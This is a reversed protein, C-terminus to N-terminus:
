MLQVTEECFTVTVTCYCTVHHEYLIEKITQSPISHQSQYFRETAAIGPSMTFPVSKKKKKKQSKLFLIQVRLISHTAKVYRNM